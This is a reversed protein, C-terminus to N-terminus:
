GKSLRTARLEVGPIEADSKAAPKRMWCCLQAWCSTKDPKNSAIENVVTKEEVDVVVPVPVMSSNKDLIGPEHIMRGMAFDARTPAISIFHLRMDDAFQAKNAMFYDRLTLLEDKNEVSIYIDIRSNQHNQIAEDFIAHLQIIKNQADAIQQVEWGAQECFQGLDALYNNSLGTEGTKQPVRSPIRYFRVVANDTIQKFYGFFESRRKQFKRDEFIARCINDDVAIIVIKEEKLKMGKGNLM